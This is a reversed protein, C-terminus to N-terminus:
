LKRYLWEPIHYERKNLVVGLLKAGVEELDKKARLVANQSTKGSNLIFVVGDAKGAIVRTEPYTPVPPCDLIVHDFNKRAIELYNDFKASHFLGFSHHRLSGTTHLYFNSKIKKFQPISINEDELFNSLGNRYDVDFMEHLCPHRLNADILFVSRWTDRALAQAFNAATTSTGDNFSSSTFVMTKLEEPRYRSLLSTKLSEYQDLYQTATTAPVSPPPPISPLDKSSRLTLYTEQHEKEARQLAQHTKGM